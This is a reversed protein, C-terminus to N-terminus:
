AVILHSLLKKAPLSLEEAPTATPITRARIITAAMMIPAIQNILVLCM